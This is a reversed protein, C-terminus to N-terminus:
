PLTGSRGGTGVSPAAAVTFGLTVWSWVILVGHAIPAPRELRTMFESARM